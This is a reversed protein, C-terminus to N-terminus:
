LDKVITKNREAARRLWSQISVETEKKNKCIRSTEAADIIAKAVKTTYFKKKGKKGFWSYTMALDNSLVTTLVRKVFDYNNAGGVSGLENVADRYNEEYQLHTELKELDEETRLPYSINLKFISKIDQDKTPKEKLHNEIAEVRTLIDCLLTRQLHLQEILPKLYTEITSGSPSTEARTATEQNEPFNSKKLVM